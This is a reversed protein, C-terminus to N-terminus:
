YDPPIQYYDIIYKALEHFVPAASESASKTAPNNLKVLILFQPNYAPAFGIFSQITQYLDYGKSDKKPVQATGTKGAIYYGEVNAKQGYGNELVSVLMSTLESATKQSIIQGNTQSKTIVEEKIGKAIKEVMFPKTAKGGNAIASFAQILQIPTVEIGQGFSATAFNIEYGKKLNSNNSFTEGQLDIDTRAFLGFRESYELFSKHGLERGAFVAGTNISRELVGTMSMEGWTKNNYNTITYGGIKLKGEDIYTTEPTVKGTNIAAAMTLPKFISGPEFLKQTAPNKFIELNEEKQYENPDFSPWNAMALIAGTRPDAVIITGEEIDLDENANKLLKEAMYQINYDVTLIIDTEVRPSIINEIGFLVFGKPGKEGKIIRKEGLLVENYYGELGYQGTQEGGLFGVIHAALTKQPYYRLIEEGLFVGPLNLEKLKNVEERNLDKKIIEYFSDEKEIRSLIHEQEINLVKNLAQATKYKQEIENPAIYCLSHSQNIALAYTQKKRDQLFIEGRSDTIEGLFIQQGKAMAQYFGGKVVQLYYLRGGLISFLLFILGLVLNIRWNKANM